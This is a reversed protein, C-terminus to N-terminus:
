VHVGKEPGVRDGGVRRGRLLELRAAGGGLVGVVKRGVTLEGVAKWHVVKDRPLALMYFPDRGQEDLVVVARVGADGEGAEAGVVDVDVFGLDGDRLVVAGDGAVRGGRRLGADGLERALLPEALVVGRVLALIGRRPRALRAARVQLRQKQEMIAHVLLRELRIVRPVWCQVSNPFGSFRHGSPIFRMGLSLNLM